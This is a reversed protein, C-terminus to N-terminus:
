IKLTLLSDLYRSTFMRGTCGLVEHFSRGGVVASKAALLDRGSVATFM